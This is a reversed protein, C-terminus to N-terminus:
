GELLIVHLELPGHVGLALEREIDSTRSAGSIFATYAAGEAFIRRLYPGADRLMPVIASRPLAIIHTESVMTALRLEEGDSPLICTATEAIGMGAVSFAVDVGSLHERMNERICAFGRARAGEALLAFVDDPLGPAAIRKVDARRIAAEDTCPEKGVSLVECPVKAECVDLVYRVAACIDRAETVVASVNEANKAFLSITARKESMGDRGSATPLTRRPLAAGELSRRRPIIERALMAPVYQQAIHEPRGDRVPALHLGVAFVLNAMMGARSGSM